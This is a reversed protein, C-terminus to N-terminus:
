LHVIIMMFHVFYNKGHRELNVYSNIIEVINARNQIRSFDNNGNDNM